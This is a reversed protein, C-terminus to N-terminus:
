WYIFQVAEENWVNKTNLFLVWERGSPQRIYFAPEQWKAGVWAVGFQEVGNQLVEHGGRLGAVLYPWRFQSQDTLDLWFRRGWPSAEYEVHKHLLFAIGERKTMIDHDRSDALNGFGLVM